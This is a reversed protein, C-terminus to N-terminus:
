IMQSLCPFWLLAMLATLSQKLPMPIIKELVLEYDRNNIRITKKFNEASVSTMSYKKFSSALVQGESNKVTYGIYKDNSLVCEAGRGGPYPYIGGM